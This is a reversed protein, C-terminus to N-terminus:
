ELHSGVQFEGRALAPKMMNAMDLGGSGPGTRGV